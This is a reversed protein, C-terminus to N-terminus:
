PKPFKLPFYKSNPNALACINPCNVALPSISLEFLYGDIM